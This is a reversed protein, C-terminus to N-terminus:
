DGARYPRLIIALACGQTALAIYYDLGSVAPYLGNPFRQRGMIM